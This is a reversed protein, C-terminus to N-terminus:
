DAKVGTIRVMRALSETEKRMFATFQEPTSPAGEVGLTALRQKVDPQNLAAAIERSLRAVIEPPTGAAVATGYWTMFDYEPLAAEAVSPTDPLAPQRKASSVALALLRGDRVYPVASSTGTFMVDVQGAVVDATAPAVGKYPIHTVQIGALSKVWEMALQHPTGNGISAYNIKGPQKKALAIFEPLTKVGLKPNAVMVLPVFVLQSVPAFDKVSDYPLKPFFTPNIAHSDTILGLTYGDPASKAVMDTGIITSAGPKNEVIVQQGMSQSMKQALMRAVIDTGGGPPYPVIFRIPKNPYAAAQAFAPQAVGLSGGLAIGALASGLLARRRLSAM